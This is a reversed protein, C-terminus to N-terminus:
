TQGVGRVVEELRIHNRRERCRTLTGLRNFSDRGRGPQVSSRSTCRPGSPQWVWRAHRCGVACSALTNIDVVVDYEGYEAHFDPPNHEDYFIKIVIGYFRSVEPM